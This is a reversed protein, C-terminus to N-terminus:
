TRTMESHGCCHLTYETTGNQAKMSVNNSSLRSTFSQPGPPEAQYIACTLLLRQRPLLVHNLVGKSAFTAPEFGARPEVNRPMDVFEATGRGIDYRM